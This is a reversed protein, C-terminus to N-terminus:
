AARRLPAEPALMIQGNLLALFLRAQKAAQREVFELGVLTEDAPGPRQWRIVVGLGLTEELLSVALRHRKGLDLPPPRGALSVQAGTLSLEHIACPSGDLTGALATELRVTSRREPGYRQSNARGSALLLLVGNFTLWFAAGYAFRPDEYSLSTLGAITLLFWVAAAVSLATLALLLRPPGIRVRSDAQRGKPTVRFPRQGPRLLTLTALLNPTMRVLDFVLPLVPRHYGRSLLRLATQQLAFTVIFAVAFVPFPASVPVGGTFLVAIPILLYGLSRWAEFWGLLTSAYALRQGLTLGSVILPNEQRLVQMAGTGWRLRQLQFQEATEAALGRALVENHYVTQWGRRHLRITTHIDETVGGTAVGGVEHLAAV